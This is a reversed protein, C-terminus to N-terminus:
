QAVVVKAHRLVKDNLKYGRQVCDIIKGKVDESEAPVMAIAEHVDTDLALGATEIETVGNKHLVGVFKDHILEVGEKIAKHDDSKSIVDLAREFDDIVPLFSELVKEGGNKILDAKEKLNRKKYNDFEAHLRLLKDKLEENLANAEDLQKALETAEDNEETKVDETKMDKDEATNREESQVAENEKEKAADTHQEKKEEM